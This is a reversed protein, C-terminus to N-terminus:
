ESSWYGCRRLLILTELQYAETYDLLDSSVSAGDRKKDEETRKSALAAIKDAPFDDVWKPGIASRVIERFATEAAVLETYTNIRSAHPLPNATTVPDSQEM